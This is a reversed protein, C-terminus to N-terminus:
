GNHRKDRAKRKHENWFRVNFNNDKDRELEDLEDSIFRHIDKKKM